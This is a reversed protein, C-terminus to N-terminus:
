EVMMALLVGLVVAGMLVAAGLLALIVLVGMLVTGATLV